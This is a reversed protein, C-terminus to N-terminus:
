AVDIDTEAITLIARFADESLPLVSLRNGQRVLRSDSLAPAQKLEALSVSRTLRQRAAVDVVSWRPEEATAKPDYYSSEPDFQTPDPYAEEVVEAVGVAGPPKVQSHYILVLDGVAMERMFNRAQYNRVGEWVARARAELDAFSFEDPETKMLWYNPM